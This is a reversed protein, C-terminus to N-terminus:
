WIKLKIMLAYFRGNDPCSLMLLASVYNTNYEKWQVAPVHMTKLIPSWFSKLCNESLGKDPDRPQFVDYDSSTRELSGDYPTRSYQTGPDKWVNNLM